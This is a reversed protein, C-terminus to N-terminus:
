KRNQHAGLASGAPRCRPHPARLDIAHQDVEIAAMAPPDHQAGFRAALQQEVQRLRHPQAVAVPQRQVVAADDPDARLGSGSSSIWACSSPSSTRMAQCRPLRCRGTCNSPSRMRMRASWTIPSM